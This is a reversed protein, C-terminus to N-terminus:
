MYVYQKKRATIIMYFTMIVAIIGGPAHQIIAYKHIISDYFRLASPFTECNSNNSKSVIKIDPLFDAFFGHYKLSITRTQQIITNTETYSNYTQCPKYEACRESIGLPSM